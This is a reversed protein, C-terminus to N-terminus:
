IKAEMRKKWKRIHPYIGLPLQLSGKGPGTRGLVLIQNAYEAYNNLTYIGKGTRRPPTWSDKLNGTDIPTMLSIEDQLKEVEDGFESYMRDKLKEIENHIDSHSPIM